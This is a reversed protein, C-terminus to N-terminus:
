MDVRRFSSHIEKYISQGFASFDLTWGALHFELKMTVHQFFNLTLNGFQPLLISLFLAPENRRALGCWDIRGTMSKREIDPYMEDVGGLAYSIGSLSRTQWKAPIRAVLDACSLRMQFDLANKGSRSQPDNSPGISLVPHQLRSLTAIRDRTAMSIPIEYDPELQM